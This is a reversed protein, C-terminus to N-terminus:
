LNLKRKLEISQTKIDFLVALIRKTHYAELNIYKHTELISELLNLYNIDDISYIWTYDDYCTIQLFREMMVYRQKNKKDIYNETPIIMDPSILFRDREGDSKEVNTTITCIIYSGNYEGVIICPRGGFNGHPDECIKGDQDKFYLGEVLIVSGPKRIEYM